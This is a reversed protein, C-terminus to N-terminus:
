FSGFKVVRRAGYYPYKTHIKDITNLLERDENSSFPLVKEYYHATKQYSAVTV